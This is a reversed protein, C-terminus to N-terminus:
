DLGSFKPIHISGVGGRRSHASVTLRLSYGQERRVLRAKEWIDHSPHWSQGAFRERVTSLAASDGASTFEAVDGIGGRRNLFYRRYEKM